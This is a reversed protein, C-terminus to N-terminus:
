SGAAYNWMMVSPAMLLALLAPSSLFGHRLHSGQAFFSTCTDAREQNADAGGPSAWRWSQTNFLEAIM